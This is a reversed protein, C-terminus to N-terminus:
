RDSGDDILRYGVGQETLLTRPRSPDPEIKRRLSAVFVRVYRADDSHQPGWVERLLQRHTLVKGAHRILAALLRFEIPTLRVAEGGRFVRRAALDVRLDGVAFVPEEGTTSSQRARNRLAVRLRALLEGIGFPKTLYDDAGRDLATVKDDERGRASLVLVPAPTWERLWDLFGLGDVDPLGLDLIVLDPPESAARARAEACSEAEVVRYEKGELAARLFRRIPREDEVILVLPRDAAPEHVNL